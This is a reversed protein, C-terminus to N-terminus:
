DIAVSSQGTRGVLLFFRYSIISNRKGENLWDLGADFHLQTLLYFGSLVM